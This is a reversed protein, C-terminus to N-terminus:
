AVINGKSFNCLWSIHGCKVCSGVGTGKDFIRKKIKWIMSGCIPCADELMLLLVKEEEPQPKSDLSSISSQPQTPTAQTSFSFYNVDNVVNVDNVFEGFGQNEQSLLTLPKNFADNVAKVFLPPPQNTLTNINNISNINNINNITDIKKCLSFTGKQGRELLGKKVLIHVLVRVNGYSKGTLEAIAKYTAKEGMEELRKVAELVERQGEGLIVEEAKGEIKWGKEFRLGLDIGEFDRFILHLVATQSNRGRKLVLINDVVATQGTSGLIEDLPDESPTKRAHHVLLVNVGDKLFSRFVDLAQYEELYLDKGKAQPKIKAWPDIIILDPKFEQVCARLGKIAGKGVKPLEFSFILPLNKLAELDTIGLNKLRKQLRGITDELAFYVVRKGLQVCTLAIQLALWSKGVKPKGGLITFGEPLLNPIIWSPEKVKTSLVDYLTFFKSVEVEEKTKLGYLKLYAEDSLGLELLGSLGKVNELPEKFSHEIGALRMGLEEDGQARLFEELAERTEEFSFGLKRLLGAVYITWFQRQGKQYVESVIEIVERLNRSPQAEKSISSKAKHLLFLFKEKLEQSIPRLPELKIPKYQAEPLVTYFNVLGNAKLEFGFDKLFNLNQTFEPEWAFGIHYHGPDKTKIVYPAEEKLREFSFFSEFREPYDIDLVLLGSSWGTKIAIGIVESKSFLERVKEIAELPDEPLSFDGWSIAPKLKTEGKQVKLPIPTLNCLALCKAIGILNGRNFCDSSSSLTLFSTVNSNPNQPM